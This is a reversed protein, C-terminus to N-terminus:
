LHQPPRKLDDCGPPQADGARDGPAVDREALKRAWTAPLALVWPVIAASLDFFFRDYVYVIVAVAIITLWLVPPRFMQMLVDGVPVRHAPDTDPARLIGRREAAKDLRDAFNQCRTLGTM